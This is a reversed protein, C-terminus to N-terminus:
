VNLFHLNLILPVIVGTYVGVSILGDFLRVGCSPLSCYVTVHKWGHRACHHAIDALRYAGQVGFQGLHPLCIPWIQFQVGLM